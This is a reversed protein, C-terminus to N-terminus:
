GAERRFRRWEITLKRMRARLTNPNVGLITAAGHPGEVRGGTAALAAEIHVKMAVDIPGIGGTQTTDAPGQGQLGPSSPALDPMIGLAKRVELCCGNGLIVAREIVSSLERINGPWSYALLADIDDGTPVLAPSGLRKGSQLAFHTALLPIDQRRERLPPLKIIFVAIRFWLDERFLQTTVMKQLDRNTAAVVRVDVNVQREGGVREFSGDQLVRLLRVQAALPLEGVEDLFLTGGDAREFWGKKM